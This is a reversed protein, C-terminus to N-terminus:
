QALGIRRVLEQFRPEGRLPDYIPDVKLATFSSSHERYAKELGPLAKDNEGMGIHLCGCLVLSGSVTGGWGNCSNWLLNPRRRIAQAVPCMLPWSGVGPCTTAVAGPRRKPWPVPEAQFPSAANETLTSDAKRPPSKNPM